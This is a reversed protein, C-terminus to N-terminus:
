TKKQRFRNKETNTKKYSPKNTYFLKVSLLLAIAVISSPAYHGEIALYVVACINGLICIAGLSTKIRESLTRSKHKKVYLNQRHAQDKNLLEIIQSASGKCISEYEALEEPSPYIKNRNAGRNDPRSSEEAKKKGNYKSGFPTPGELPKEGFYKKSKTISM